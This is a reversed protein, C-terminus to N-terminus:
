AERVFRRLNELGIAVGKLPDEMGEFEIALVGDYGAKKLVSLCPRIPM